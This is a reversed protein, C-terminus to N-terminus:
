KRALAVAVVVAAATAAAFGLTTWSPLPNKSRDAYKMAVVTEGKPLRHKAYIKLVHQGATTAALEHHMDRLGPPLDELPIQWDKREPPFILPSALAAFALDAATFGYSATKTDLLYEGGTEDLRKSWEAFVARIAEASALSAEKSVGLAKVMGAALGKDLFKDFVDSEIKAVKKPDACMKVITSHYDALNTLFHYYSFCRLTAGLRQGLDAEVREVEEKIEPPYLEPMFYQNIRGSDYIIKKEGDEQFIVMPTRSGQNDSAKLTEYAHFAPPHADETYYYPNDDRAELLDLVFRTKECFHSV